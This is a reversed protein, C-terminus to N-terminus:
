DRRTSPPVAPPNTPKQPDDVPRILKEADFVAPPIKHKNPDYDFKYEPVPPTRDRVFVRILGIAAFLVIATLIVANAARVGEPTHPLLRPVPITPLPAPAFVPALPAPAPTPTPQAAAIARVLKRLSNRMEGHPFHRANILALDSAIALSQAFPVGGGTWAWRDDGIQIYRLSRFSENEAVAELVEPFPRANLVLTEVNPFNGHRLFDYVPTRFFSVKLWGVREMSPSRGVEALLEAYQGTDRLQDWTFPTAYLHIDWLPCMSFPDSTDPIYRLAPSDPPLPLIPARIPLEQGHLGLFEQPRM